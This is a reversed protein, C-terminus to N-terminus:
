HDGRGNRTNGGCKCHDKKAHEIEHEQADTTAVVDYDPQYGNLPNNKM